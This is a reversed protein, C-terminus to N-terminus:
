DSLAQNEAPWSRAMEAATKLAALMSTQDAKGTGALDYATGHDVSTRIFPLGLTINVGDKFHLLKLPILGQDHYMCVVADFRGNAAQHFLTDAPFPGALDLGKERAKAVAPAIIEEEERGFLGSEGAHPNLAAAALCPRALGFYRRLAEHTIEATTVIGDISLLSPVDKLAVHITVLAVRLRPGALMMVVQPGGALHALMQTHGQFKYGAKNLSEKSIPATVLGQIRRDLAMAAGIEIYRAAARGGAITPRGPTMDKPGLESLPLVQLIGPRGTPEAGPDLTRISLDLGLLRHAQEIVKIDGLVLPRCWDWVRKEALARVIVEPGVGAPDGMTVGLVPKTFGTM